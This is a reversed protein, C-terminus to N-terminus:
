LHSHLISGCGGCQHRQKENKRATLVCWVLPATRATTLRLHSSIQALKVSWETSILLPQRAVVYQKESNRNLASAEKLHRSNSSTMLNLSRRTANKVSKPDWLAPTYSFSRSLENCECCVIARPELTVIGPIGIAEICGSSTFSKPFRM